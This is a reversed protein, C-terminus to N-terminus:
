PPATFASRHMRRVAPPPFVSCGANDFVIRDGEITVGGPNGVSEYELEVQRTVQQYLTGDQAQFLLNDIEEGACNDDVSSGDQTIFTYVERVRIRDTGATNTIAWSPTNADIKVIDVIYTTSQVLEQLM